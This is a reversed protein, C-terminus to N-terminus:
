NYCLNKKKKINKRLDIAWFSLMIIKQHRSKWLHFLILELKKVGDCFSKM